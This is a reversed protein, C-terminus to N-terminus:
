ISRSIWGAAQRPASSLATGNIGHAIVYCRLAWRIHKKVAGGLSKHFPQYIM